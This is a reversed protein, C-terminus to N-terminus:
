RKHGVCLTKRGNKKSDSQKEEEGVKDLKDKLEPREDMLEGIQMKLVLNESKLDNVM